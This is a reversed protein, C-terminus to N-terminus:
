YNGNSSIATNFDKDKIEYSTCTTFPISGFVSWDYFPKPYSNKTDKLIKLLIEPNKFCREVVSKLERELVEQFTLVCSNNSIRYVSQIQIIGDEVYKTYIDVDGDSSLKLEQTIGPIVEQVEKLTM